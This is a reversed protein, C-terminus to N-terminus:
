RNKAKHAQCRKVCVEQPAKRNAECWRYCDLPGKGKQQQQVNFQHSRGGGLTGTQAPASAIGAFFLPLIALMRFM